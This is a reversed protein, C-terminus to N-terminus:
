STKLDITNNIFQSYSNTINDFRIASQRNNLLLHNDKFVNNITGPDQIYIAYISANNITNSAFINESAGELVYIGYQSNIISNNHIDNRSSKDSVEIGSEGGSIINGYVENNNALTHIAIATQNTKNAYIINNRIISNTVNKDLMIGRQANNFVQNSEIVINYCDRSCIIGHKGNDYVLNNRIFLDHTGSHPDIGYVNNSYFKNNEITINYVTSYYNASYFGYWLHHITNNKIVSGAGGYYSLGFSRSANYGLYALESNTINTTTSSNRENGETDIKIYSRPIIGDNSSSTRMVYNNTSSDWSTIKVSDIQMNGHVEIYNAVGSTSNIKLWAADTSNIYFTAGDEIEINANLFWVKTSEKNLILTNNLKNYIDTLNASNCSVSIVKTEPAYKICSITEANQQQISFAPM